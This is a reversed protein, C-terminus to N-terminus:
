ALQAQYFAFPLKSQKLSIKISQVDVIFELFTSWWQTIERLNMSNIWHLTLVCLQEKWHSEYNSLTSWLTSFVVWWWYFMLFVTSDQFTCVRGNEGNYHLVHPNKSWISTLQKHVATTETAETTSLVFGLCWLQWILVPNISESSLPQLIVGENLSQM